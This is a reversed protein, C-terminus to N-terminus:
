YSVHTTIRGAFSFAIRSQLIISATWRLERSGGQARLQFQGLSVVKPSAQYQHNLYAREKRGFARASM